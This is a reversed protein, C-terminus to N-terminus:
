YSHCIYAHVPILTIEKWGQSLALEEGSIQWVDKFDQFKLSTMM